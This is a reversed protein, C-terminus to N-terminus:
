SVLQLLGKVKLSQIFEYFKEERELGFFRLSIFNLDNFDREDKNYYYIENGLYVAYTLVKYQDDVELPTHHYAIANIYKDPFNWKRAVECGILSHNYGKTLDELISIPIHRETCLEKLKEGLDSQMSNVIIKGMDHLLAAVYIDEVILNLKKYRALFSAIMAVNYSHENVAEIVKRNFRKLLVKKVGYNYLVSNVGLMGILRVAGSVDTIENRTRYVPSNAIRLIEATLSPDHNIKGAVSGFSCNPDCLEKQLSVVSEPFQPMQSIEKAIEKAIIIGHDKSVMSLPIKILTISCDGKNKFSLAKEDLNMNRLMLIIIILGIGGGETTDFGHNFVEAMNNFKQALKFSEAIRVTEIQVLPSNNIIEIFLTENEKRIKIHVFSNNDIHIKEFRSFDHFVDEKFNIMAKEYEQPNNIDIGISDFYLRKSNAKSSNMSLENLVYELHSFLSEQNIEELVVRLVQSFFIETDRTTFPLICSFEDNKLFDSKIDDIEIEDIVTYVM